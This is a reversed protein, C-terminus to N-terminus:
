KYVVKRNLLYGLGTYAVMATVQSLSSGWKLHDVMLVLLGFQFAYCLGFVLLFKVAQLPVAGGSRFTWWRNLLFSNCTGVAYGAANALRYDAHALGGLLFITGLALLTNVAGVLVYRVIQGATLAAPSGVLRGKRLGLVGQSENDTKQM